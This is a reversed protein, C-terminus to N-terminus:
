TGIVYNWLTGAELGNGSGEVPVPSLTVVGATAPSESNRTHSKPVNINSNGQVASHPRHRLDAGSVEPSRGAKRLGPGELPDGRPPPLARLASPGPGRPHATGPTRGQRGSDRGPVVWAPTGLPRNGSHWIKFKCARGGPRRLVSGTGWQGIVTVHLRWPAGAM